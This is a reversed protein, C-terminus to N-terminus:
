GCLTPPLPTDLIQVHALLMDPGTATIANCRVTGLSTYVNKWQDGGFHGWTDSNQGWGGFAHTYTSYQHVQFMSLALVHRQVTTAVIWAESCPPIDFQDDIDLTDPQTVKLGQEWGTWLGDPLGRMKSIFATSLADNDPYLAEWWTLATSHCQFPQVPVKATLPARVLPHLDKNRQSKGHFPPDNQAWSESALLLCSGRFTVYGDTANLYLNNGRLGPGGMYVDWPIVMGGAIQIAATVMGDDDARQSCITNLMGVSTRPGFGADKLESAERPFQYSAYDRTAPSKSGARPYRCVHVFLIFFVLLM